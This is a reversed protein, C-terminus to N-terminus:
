QINRQKRQEMQFVTQQLTQLCRSVRVTSADFEGQAQALKM